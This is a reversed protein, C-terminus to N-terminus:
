TIPPTLALSARVILTLLSTLATNSANSLSQTAMILPPPHYALQLVDYWDVHTTTSAGNVQWSFTQSLLSKTSATSSADVEMAREALHKSEVLDRVKLLRVAHGAMAGGRGHWRRSSGLSAVTFLSAVFQTRVLRGGAGVFGFIRDDGVMM